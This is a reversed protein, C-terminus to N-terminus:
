DEGYFDKSMQAREAPDTAQSYAANYAADDAFKYKKGTNSETGSKGGGSGGNKPDVRHFGFLGKNMEVVFKEFPIAKGFEDTRKEGTAADILFPEGNEDVAIENYPLLNYFSALRQDKTVVGEVELIAKHKELAAAAKQQAVTKVIKLGETKKYQEFQQQLEANKESAAKLKDAILQKVIPNKAATEPTIDGGESGSGAKFAAFDTVLQTVDTVGEPIDFGEAKMAKRYKEFAVRTFRKETETKAALVQAKAAATLDSLLADNIELTEKEGKLTAIFEDTNIGLAVCFAAILKQEM